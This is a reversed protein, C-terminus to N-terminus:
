DIPIYGYGYEPNFTLLSCCERKKMDTWGLFYEMDWSVIEYVEPNENKDLLSILRSPMDEVNRKEWWNMKRFLHPYKEIDILDLGGVAAYEDTHYCDNTANKIRRIIQGKLFECNPYEEIVEFRPILLDSAKM